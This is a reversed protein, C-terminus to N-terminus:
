AHQVEKSSDGTNDWLAAYGASVISLFLGLVESDGINVEWWGSIIIGVTCAIVAHFIFRREGTARRLGIWFDNLVIAFM